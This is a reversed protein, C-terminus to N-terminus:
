EWFLCKPFHLKAFSKTDIIYMTVIPHFQSDSSELELGPDAM